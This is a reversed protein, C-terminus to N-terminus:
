GFTVRKMLKNPLIRKVAVTAKNERSLTDSAAGTGTNAFSIGFTVKSM